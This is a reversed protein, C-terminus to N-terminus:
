SSPLTGPFFQQEGNIKFSKITNQGETSLLWDIFAQGEAKKVKPHKAANMSIAPKSNSPQISQTPSMSVRHYKM